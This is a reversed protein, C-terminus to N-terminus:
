FHCGQSGLSVILGSVLLTLYLANANAGYHALGISLALLLVVFSSFRKAATVVPDLREKDDQTDQIALYQNAATRILGLAVATLLALALLFIIDNLITRLTDSLFALGSVAYNAFLLIVLWRLERSVENLFEDDLKTPTRKVIRSLIQNVLLHSLFYGAVIIVISVALDAWDGATLGLFTQGSLGM